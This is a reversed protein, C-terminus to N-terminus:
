TDSSTRTGVAIPKKRGATSIGAHASLSSEEASSLEIKSCSSPCRRRQSSQVFRACFTTRANSNKWGATHHISDRRLKSRSIAQSSKTTALVASAQLYACHRTETASFLKARLLNARATAATLRTRCVAMRSVLIKSSFRSVSVRTELGANTVIAATLKTISAARGRM